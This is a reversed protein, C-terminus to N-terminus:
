VRAEQPPTRPPWPWVGFPSPRFSPRSHHWAPILDSVFWLLIAGVLNCILYLDDFGRGPTPTKCVRFPTKVIQVQYSETALVITCDIISILVHLTESKYAHTCMSRHSLKMVSIWDPFHLPPRDYKDYIYISSCASNHLLATEGVCYETM